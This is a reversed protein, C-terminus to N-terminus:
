LCRNCVVACYSRYKTNLMLNKISDTNKMSFIYFTSPWLIPSNNNNMIHRTPNSCSIGSMQNSGIVYYYREQNNNLFTVCPRMCVVPDYLYIFARFLVLSFRKNEDPKFNIVSLVCSPWYILNVLKQTKTWM